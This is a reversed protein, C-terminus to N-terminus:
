KGVSVWVSKTQTYAEFAAEGLERGFGSQKYGGFPVSPDYLNYMNVWVTGAKLGRAFKHARTIDNTWVGSALGYPTDNAIKLAEEFTDFPIVTLVPGFIEEKAITMQNTAGTMVTPNVYWGKNGVNARTGGFAVKAGEAKGKEIYGLVSDLQSKMAVPGMRTNPDLPDGCVLKKAREVIQEVLADHVKREVILRSGAACVEGKNYFIGVIAGAAAAKLDADAFVVNPSKGGLELTVKKIGVAAKQM